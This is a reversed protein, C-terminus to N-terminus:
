RLGVRRLLPGFTRRLPLAAHEGLFGALALQLAVSERWPIRARRVARVASGTVALHSRFGYDWDLSVSRTQYIKTVLQEPIRVFEGLLALHLLWPWDASFEGAAHRHLGGIASAAEARFVGRNPIWWAGRQWAVCRARELRDAVGDIETYAKEERRGDRHMLAVDSHALVARPNADLADVCRAIYDPELHDDHFAFLFYDGRGEALLANVNGVWGLNRPQRILRFRADREAYAAVIEATADPSADDSVLVELNPYTQAVLTDLTSAIFDRARWTPMLAVVRPFAATLRVGHGRAM